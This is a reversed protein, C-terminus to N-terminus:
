LQFPLLKYNTIKDSYNYDTIRGNNVAVHVKKLSRQARTLHAEAANHLKRRM